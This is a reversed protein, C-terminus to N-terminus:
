RSDVATIAQWDVSEQYTYAIRLLLPDEFFRGVLQLSIPLRGVKGCPVAVAPHGTYSAPKTNSTYPMYVWNRRHLDDATAASRGVPSTDIPPAVTPVTPMALVDVEALARDFARVFGPRVNQAKAYAAGHFQIRSLTAVIQNLKTRPPFETAHHQWMREVASILPAPYYTKSWMGFLGTDTIAKAGEYHLAAYVDNVQAHEPVSVEVVQAGAAALVRLAEAVGEGV